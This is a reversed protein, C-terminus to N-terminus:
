GGILQVLKVFSVKVDEGVVIDADLDDVQEDGVLLLFGNQQFAELAKATQAAEDIQATKALRYGNLVREAERPQVLGRYMETPRANHLRVEARVRRTILERVSMKERVLRLEITLEHLQEGTSSEDVIRLVASM